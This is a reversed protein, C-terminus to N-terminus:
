VVAKIPGARVVPTEGGGTVRVWVNYTVDATLTVGSTSAPGIILKAAPYDRETNATWTASKWDGSAPAASTALVALEVTYGVLTADTIGEARVGVRISEKSQASITAIM